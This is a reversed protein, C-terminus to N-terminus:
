QTHQPPHRHFTLPTEGPPLHAIDALTYHDLVAWFAELAEGLIPALRCSSTIRCDGTTGFCEVLEWHGEMDRAVAGLSICSEPRALALGGGKGRRAKVYGRAALTNAVKMLHNYSIDFYDAIERIKPLATTATAEDTTRETAAKTTANRTAQDALYMLLRFAFDTQQNLQM